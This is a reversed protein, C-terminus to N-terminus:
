QNEIIAIIADQDTATLRFGYGLRARRPLHL